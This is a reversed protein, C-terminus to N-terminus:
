GIVLCWVGGGLHLSVVWGALVLFLVPTAEPGLLTGAAECTAFVVFCKNNHVWGAGVVSVSEV